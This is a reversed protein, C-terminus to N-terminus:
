HQPLKFHENEFCHKNLAKALKPTSIRSVHKNEFCHKNDRSYPIYCNRKFAGKIVVDPNKLIPFIQHIQNSTKVVLKYNKTLFTQISSINLAIVFLKFNISQKKLNNIKIFAFHFVTQFPKSM